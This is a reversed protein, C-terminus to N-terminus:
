LFGFVKICKSTTEVIASTAQVEIKEQLIRRVKIRLAKSLFKSCGRKRTDKMMENKLDIKSPGFEM